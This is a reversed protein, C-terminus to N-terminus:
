EALPLWRIAQRTEIGMMDHLFEFHSGLLQTLLPKHPPIEYGVQFRVERAVTTGMSAYGIYDSDGVPMPCFVMRLFALPLRFDERQVPYPSRCHTWFLEWLGIERTGTCKKLDRRYEMRVVTPRKRECDLLHAGVQRM